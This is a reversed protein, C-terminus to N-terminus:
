KWGMIYKQYVEVSYYVLPLKWKTYWKNGLGARECDDRFHKSAQKRSVPKYTCNWDHKVSAEFMKNLDTHTFFRMAFTPISAGDSVFGAKVFDYDELVLWEKGKNEVKIGM